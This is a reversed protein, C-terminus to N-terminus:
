ADVHGAINLQLDSKKVVKQMGQLEFSITYAGPPLGAISYAGAPGSVATRSGQLSPSTVTVTAGPLPSGNTTVTGAVTTATGQGFAAFAVLLLLACVLFMRQSFAM